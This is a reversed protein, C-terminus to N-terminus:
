LPYLPSVAFHPSFRPSAPPFPLRRRPAVSVAASCNTGPTQNIDPFRQKFGSLGNGALDAWEAWYVGAAPLVSRAVSVVHAFTGSVGAAAKVIPANARHSAM